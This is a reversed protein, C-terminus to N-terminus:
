QVPSAESPPIGPTSRCSVLGIPRSRLLVGLPQSLRFAYRLRTLYVRHPDSSETRLRRLSPFRMSARDALSKPARRPALIRSLSQVRALSVLPRLARKVALRAAHTGSVAFPLDGSEDRSRLGLRFHEVLVARPVRTLYESTGTSAILPPGAPPSARHAPRFGEIHKSPSSEHSREAL